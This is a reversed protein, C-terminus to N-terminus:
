GWQFDEYTFRTQPERKGSKFLKLDVSPMALKGIGDHVM